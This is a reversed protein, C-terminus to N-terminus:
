WVIVSLDQQDGITVAVAFVLILAPIIGWVPIVVGSILYVGLASGFIDAAYIRGATNAVKDE